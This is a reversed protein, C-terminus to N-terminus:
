ASVIPYLVLPLALDCLVAVQLLLGLALNACGLVKSELAEGSVQEVADVIEVTGERDHGLLLEVAAVLVEQVEVRTELHGLRDKHVCELLVTQLSKVGASLAVLEVGVHVIGSELSGLGVLRIAGDEETLGLAEGQVASDDSHTCANLFLRM